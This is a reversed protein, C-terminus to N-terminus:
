DWFGPNKRRKLEAQYLPAQDHLRVATGYAFGLAALTTVNLSPSLFAKYDIIDLKKLLARTNEDDPSIKAWTLFDKLPPPPGPIPSETRNNPIQSTTQVNDAPAAPQGHPHGPQNSIRCFRFEPLKPPVMETAGPKRKFLATAWTDMMLHSLHVAENTNEPNILGMCEWGGISVCGYDQMLKVRIRQWKIHMELEDIRHPALSNPHSDLTARDFTDEKSKLRNATKPNDIFLKFDVEKGKNAKMTEKFQDLVVESAIMKLASKLFPGRGAVYGKFALKGDLDAERLLSGCVAKVEACADFVAEKVDVLTAGHIQIVSNFAPESTLDIYKQATGAQKEAKTKPIPTYVHFWLKVLSPKAEDAELSPQIAVEPYRPPPTVTLNIDVHTESVARPQGQINHNGLM